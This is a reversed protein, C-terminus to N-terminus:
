APPEVKKVYCVYGFDREKVVGRVTIKRGHLQAIADKGVVGNGLLAFANRERDVLVLYLVSADRMHPVAKVVGTITDAPRQPNCGGQCDARIGAAMAVGCVCSVAVAVGGMMIKWSVDM